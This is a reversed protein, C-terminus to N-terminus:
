YLGDWGEDCLTSSNLFETFRDVNILIRGSIRVAKIRGCVALKRVFYQSLGFMESVEAISAMRPARVATEATNCPDNHTM